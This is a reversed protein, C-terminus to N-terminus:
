RADVDRPASTRKYERLAEALDMCRLWFQACSVGPGPPSSPLAAYTAAPLHQRAQADRRTLEDLLERPPRPQAESAPPCAERLREIARLLEKLGSRSASLGSV